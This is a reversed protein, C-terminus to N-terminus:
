KCEDCGDLAVEWTMMDKFIQCVYSNGGRDVYADHLLTLNERVYTPLTKIPLYKYYINTIDNRLLALQAKNSGFAKFLGKRIPKCIAILGAMLAVITGIINEVSILAALFEGM